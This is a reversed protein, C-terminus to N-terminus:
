LECKAGAKQTKRKTIIAVIKSRDGKKFELFDEISKIPVAKGKKIMTTAGHNMWYEDFWKEGLKAFVGNGALIDDIFTISGINATNGSGQKDSAM